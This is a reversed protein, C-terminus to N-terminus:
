WELLVAEVQGPPVRVQLERAGRRLRTDV